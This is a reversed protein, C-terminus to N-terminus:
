RKGVWRMRLNEVAVKSKGINVANRERREQSIALSMRRLYNENCSAVKVPARFTPWTDKESTQTSLRLSSCIIRSALSASDDMGSSGALWLPFRTKAGWVPFLGTGRSTPVVARTRSSWRCCYSNCNKWSSLSRHFSNLCAVTLWTRYIYGLLEFSDKPIKWTIFLTVPRSTFRWDILIM